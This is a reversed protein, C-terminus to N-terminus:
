GAATFRTEQTIVLKMVHSVPLLAFCNFPSFRMYLETTFAPDLEWVSNSLKLYCCSAEWPM